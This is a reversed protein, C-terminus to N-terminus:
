SKSCFGSISDQQNDGMNQIQNSGKPPKTALDHGVKTVAPVTAQWARRVTLNEPCSYQVPKGDGEGPSRVRAEQM